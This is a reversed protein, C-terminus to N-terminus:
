NDLEVLWKLQIQVLGFVFLLQDALGSQSELRITQRLPYDVLTYSRSLTASRIKTETIIMRWVMRQTKM